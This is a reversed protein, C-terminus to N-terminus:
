RGGGAESKRRSYACAGGGADLVLPLLDGGISRPPEMADMEEARSRDPDTYRPLKARYAATRLPKGPNLYTGPCDLERPEFDDRSSIVAM